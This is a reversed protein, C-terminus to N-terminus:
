AIFSDVAETITVCLEETLFCRTVSDLFSPQNIISWLSNDHLVANIYCTISIVLSIMSNVTGFILWLKLIKLWSRFSNNLNSLIAPKLGNSRKRELKAITREFYVGM